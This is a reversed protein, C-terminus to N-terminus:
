FGRAWAARTAAVILDVVADLPLVTPDLILHYLKADSPDTRYLRKVYVTRARDTESLAQAAQEATVGEIQTAVALRRERPGDLRVHYALPRGALVVAAARGLIVGGDGRRLQAIGSEARGRLIQDDDETTVPASVTPGFPAAHALYSFFRHHPTAQEEGETLRETAPAAHALEASVLRNLFPLGLKEAVAPAVVSGGAGYTASITVVPSPAKKPGGGPASQQGTAQSM